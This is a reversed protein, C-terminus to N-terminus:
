TDYERHAIDDDYDFAKKLSAVRELALAKDLADARDRERKKHIATQVSEVRDWAVRCEKTDEYGHCVLKAHRINDRLKRELYVSIPITVALNM